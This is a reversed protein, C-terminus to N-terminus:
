RGGTHTQWLVRWNPGYVVVNGDDQVVLAANGQGHTGTNWAAAGSAQYLVVNGDGQMVFQATRKGVTRTNWLPVTGAYLVVNGDGQHVLQFRGDCSWKSQNQLLAENAGLVGCGPSNANEAPPTPAPPPSTTTPTGARPTTPLGNRRLGIYDALDARTGKVARGVKGTSYYDLICHTGEARNIWGGFLRVHGITGGGAVQRRTRRNLADGAILDDVPIEFTDPHNSFPEMMATSAGPKPLGWAMSVFGSCDRRYGEFTGGRNYTVGLDIWRHAIALAWLREDNPARALIADKSCEPSAMLAGEDEFADDGSVDLEIGPDDPRLENECGAGVVALAVTAFLSTFGSLYRTTSIM